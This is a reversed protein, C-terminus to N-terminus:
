KVDAATVVPVNSPPPNKANTNAIEILCNIRGNSIGPDDAKMAPALNAYAAAKAADGADKISKGLSLAKNAVDEADAVAQKAQNKYKAWLPLMVALFGALDNVVSVAVNPNKFLGVVLALVGKLFGFM